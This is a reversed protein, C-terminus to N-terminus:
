SLKFISLFLLLASFILSNLGMIFLRKVEVSQTKRNVYLLRISMVLSFIAGICSVYLLHTRSLIDAFGFCAFSIVNIINIDNDDFKMM